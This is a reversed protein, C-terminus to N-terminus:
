PGLTRTLLPEKLVQCLQWPQMPHCDYGSTRRCCCHQACMKFCLKRHAQCAPLAM